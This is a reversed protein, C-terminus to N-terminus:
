SEENKIWRKRRIRNSIEQASIPHITIVQIEEGIIDYVLAMSRVKRNYELKRIAIYHQTLNDFYKQDPKTIIKSPYNLPIQRQRLRIKLHPQLIIKM